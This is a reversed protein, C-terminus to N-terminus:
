KSYRELGYSKWRDISLFKGEKWFAVRKPNIKKM